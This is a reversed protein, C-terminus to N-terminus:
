RQKQSSLILVKWLQWRKTNNFLYIVQVPSSMAVKLKFMIEKATREVMLQHLIQAHGPKGQWEVVVHNPVLLLTQGHHSDEM